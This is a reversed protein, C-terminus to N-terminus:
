GDLKDVASQLQSILKSLPDAQAGGPRPRSRSESSKMEEQERELDTANNQGKMEGDKLMQQDESRGDEEMNKLQIKQPPQGQLEGALEQVVLSEKSLQDPRTSGCTYTLGTRSNRKERRECKDLDCARYLGSSTRIRCINGIYQDEPATNDNDPLKRNPRVSCGMLTNSEPSVMLNTLTEKTPCLFPLCGSRKGQPITVTCEMTTVSPTSRQVSFSRFTANMMQRNIRLRIYCPDVTPPPTCALQSALMAPPNAEAGGPGSRSRSSEMEEQERELDTPNNQDKMEGDKLMQQDGNEEINKLQTKQPSQGQLEGALEQVVLSEKSLHDPGMSGCTYTLGTRSNRRECKDLDCARYLGSITRIRCINGIYQDEPATNDNDPLKRNPRVSCGMLTNSEPSVMLNTLTEKTPCLFPLCGSRKGQPITVTCEMTTVSPTSRQVSFSRFTANMMQRNIRLRIYCPDVTPPPTCALQSALMAPPNAEAGGPGSRSRSSEMEEQERELDTPNNQGKMEGDKLMQQDGNEEINKLQTKQPSQGQVEGALEQVVLSEKSLQDPGMSGCTYTLGTFSFWRECKDLDCARYLGSIIQIRSINGIYQDEPAMNDNDPLKRNPQVSCGMLTNSEPSVMLNTVTEKTPCLFPLCGSRKGQPITVTCEMTTVSPPSGQVSFSRFTANMMQRNIRLRIYCPDVTPPPTCALQSALMAPPNAEAGGPGSRSRSSEMEEQERELDTPNNQDKMEGDKLMQQDESRSDEEMNKLQIKQPSQDQLEGALEQVALSEKSLQDPGMSGCTYTLGTPSFWRECKDLDCARYLGSITRIRCINGIYQDEPATNDNDPLKRNPRVSCGMLTNSEPSVMLNTLAEKTPCLFPLCGSRKGQPITVTCEMTTVSPPSRQVSFSRFTANMMQRNIRLRIYCPDVTPPPTCALQSALMAPPNAEAGGPGSRSRSSEMEEQERELDTPNNQDKMEGDELMQQDESIRGSEEMNKLQDIASQLLGVVTEMSDPDEDDDNEDDKQLFLKQMFVQDQLLKQIHKPITPDNISIEKGFLKNAPTPVTKQPSQGQLEGALEQVNVLSEKSLQNPAMSDCTYTLGTHSNRKECKDLNRYLGSSQKIRRINGIYIAGTGNNDPLKSNPQVSCGMLTNGKPSVMLNTVTEKTPCLFPLCGSTQGQPITVNFVMTTASPTSGSSNQQLSFSIFAANMMQPNISLRIYCPDMWATLDVAPLLTCPERPQDGRFANPQIERINDANDCIIRSLSANNIAARQRSTFTANSLDTNNYYFRDGNRIASFTKAFICAFTAGLVGGPLPKEALGGVWLDVTELTGYTQLLRIMTLDSNFDSSVGCQRKAWRKWTMYPPLGHDRGRQINLSALDMGHTSANTQFLHNTLVDNVFEDTRRAQRALLGRLIPDTGNSAAYQNPQFFSDILSLPGISLPQFTQNLRDFQPRIQSHGFRFAATTFANPIGPDTNADYSFDPILEIGKGLLLPLYDQFTIKQLEAGVIQRAVQFVTESDWRTNLRELEDAIRNHERMWITHMTLLGLQENVRVDGALFCNHGGLCEM